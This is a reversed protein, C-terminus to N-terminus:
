TFLEMGEAVKGSWDMPDDPGAILFLYVPQARSFSFYSQVQRPNGAKTYRANLALAPKGGLLSRGKETIHLSGPEANASLIRLAASELGGVFPQPGTIRILLQVIPISVPIRASWPLRGAQIQRGLPDEAVFAGERNEAQFSAPVALKFLQTMDVSNGIASADVSKAAFV